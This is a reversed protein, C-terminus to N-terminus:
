LAISHFMGSFLYHKARKELKRWTNNAKSTYTARPKKPTATYFQWHRNICKQMAPRLGAFTSSCPEPGEWTWTKLNALLFLDESAYHLILVLDKPAVSQRPSNVTAFINTCACEPLQSEASVAAAFLPLFWKCTRLYVRSSCRNENQFVFICWSLDTLLQLSVSPMKETSWPQTEFRRWWSQECAGALRSLRPLLQVDTAGISQSHKCSWPWQKATRATSSLICFSNGLSHPAMFHGYEIPTNMYNFCFIAMFHGHLVMGLWSTNLNLKGKHLQAAQNPFTVKLILVTYPFHLCPGWRLPLEATVSLARHRSTVDKRHHLHRTAKGGKLVKDGPKIMWVGEFGALSQPSLLFGTNWSVGTFSPPTGLCVALCMM